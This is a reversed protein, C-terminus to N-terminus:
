GARSRRRGPTQVVAAESGYRGVLHDHEATDRDVGDSGFLPLHKTASRPTHNGLVRVAADVADAAMRRYTTLKGGTVTVVGSPAVRVAHRRSLDASRTHRGAALLPRLGAWSGM